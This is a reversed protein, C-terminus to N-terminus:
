SFEGAIYDYTGDGHGKVHDGTHRRLEAGARYFRKEIIELMVNVEISNGYEDVIFGSSNLKEKWDELTRLNGVVHLSFVWGYSSKGIHIREYDFCSCNACHPKKNPYWYYNDGM